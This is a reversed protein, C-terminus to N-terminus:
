GQVEENPSPRLIVKMVGPIGQHLREFWAPGEELGAVASILPAVQIAGTQLLQICEPYEGNSACSGQLTLERNVIAQLPIEVTPALNGVLIIRGGRRTSLVSSTVTEQCGVVELTVDGGRGGTQELIAEVANQQKSHITDTAGLQRALELRKTDVDVAIIKSAGALRIAQVILLGIMGAGLVVATSGLTPHALGSAHVAISVAEIMAAHEYTVGDPLLYTITEPVVVFEAFAGHRRFEDCSVGLVQRSSCLNIRGSRCASCTGCSVTSDFTVRDGIRFRTVNNGVSVVEGAAEHGMILPPRRRGTSGDYGHIDSGCVGCARVRVLLENPGFEPDPFEVMELKKYDQLLMARM